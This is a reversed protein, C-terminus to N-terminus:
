ILGDPLHQFTDLSLELVTLLLYYRAEVHKAIPNADEKKGELASNFVEYLIFFGWPQLVSRSSLVAEGEERAVRQRWRMEAHRSVRRWLATFNSNM